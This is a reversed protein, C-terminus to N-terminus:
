ALVRELWSRVAEVVAARDSRLSHDGRVVAIDRGRAAPPVGFRDNEGQVVLVPLEVAELEPLRSPRTAAAGAGARAPPRLPFALCLVGVAGLEAATRCAVRAGSSRGGVVLPLERLSRRRLQTVVSVWAADLTRARPPSRRGAVRYPQEVLVVSMREALGAETAALLDPAAVGGGAGHGLVLAGAPADAAHLHARAPGHPTDIELVRGRYRHPPPSRAFGRAV